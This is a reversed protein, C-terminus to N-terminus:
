NMVSMTRIMHLYVRVQQMIPYFKKLDHTVESKLCVKPSVNISDGGAWRDWQRSCYASNRDNSWFFPFLNYRWRVGHMRPSRTDSVGMLLDYSWILNCRAKGTVTLVQSYVMRSERAKDLVLMVKLGCICLWRTQTYDKMVPKIHLKIIRISARRDQASRWVFTLNFYLALNIIHIPQTTLGQDPSYLLDMEEDGGVRM